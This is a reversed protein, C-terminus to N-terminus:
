FNYSKRSIVIPQDLWNSSYVFPPCFELITWELFYFSSPQTLVSRFRTSSAKMRCYILFYRSNINIIRNEIKINMKVYPFHSQDFLKKELKDGESVDDDIINSWTYPKYQPSPTYEQIVNIILYLILDVHIEANTVFCYANIIITM